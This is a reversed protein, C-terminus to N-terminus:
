AARVKVFLSPCYRPGLTADDKGSSYTPLLHQHSMVIEHTASNTYTRACHIYESSPLLDSSTSVAKDDSDSDSSNDGHLFSFYHVETDSGQTECKSWDITSALLRPPTGTKMRGM